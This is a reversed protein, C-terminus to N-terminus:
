THPSVHQTMEFCITHLIPDVIPEYKVRIQFNQTVVPSQSFTQPRNSVNTTVNRCNHHHKLSKSFNLWLWIRGNYTRLIITLNIQILITIIQSSHHRIHDFLFHKPVPLTWEPSNQALKPDIQPMQPSSRAILPSNSVNTTSKHRNHRTSIIALIWDCDYVIM